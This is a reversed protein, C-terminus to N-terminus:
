ALAPEEPPDVWGEPKPPPSLPRPRKHHRDARVHSLGEHQSLRAHEHLKWVQRRMEEPDDHRMGYEAKTPMGDVILTGRWVWLATGRVHERAVAPAFDAPM